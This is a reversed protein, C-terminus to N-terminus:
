SEKRRILSLAAAQLEPPIPEFNELFFPALAIGEANFIIEADPELQLLEDVMVMQHLKNDELRYLAIKLPNKASDSITIKVKLALYKKGM